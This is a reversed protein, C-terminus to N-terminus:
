GDSSHASLKYSYSKKPTKDLAPARLWKPCANLLREEEEYTLVRDRVNDEREM